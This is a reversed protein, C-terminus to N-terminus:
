KKIHAWKDLQHSWINKKTEGRFNPFHNLKDLIKWIPQNLWWSTMYSIVGGTGPGPKRCIRLDRSSPLNLKPVGYYTGRCNWELHNWFQSSSGMKVLMNNWIPQNLWWGSKFSMSANFCQVKQSKTLHCLTLRWFCPNQSILTLPSCMWLCWLYRWQFFSRM